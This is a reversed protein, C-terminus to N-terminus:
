TLLFNDATLPMAGRVLIQMDAMGDGTADVHVTQAGQSGSVWVGFAVPGEASFILGETVENLRIVDEASMDTITDITAALGSDSVEAFRFVDAGSGGTLFDRGGEGALVDAGTGGVLSDKGNGGFLVDGGAGGNLLDDGNEGFASDQGGRGNFADRGAGLSVFDAYKNGDVSDAGRFITSDPEFRGGLQYRFNMGTVSFLLKSGAVGSMSDFEMTNGQVRHSKMVISLEGGTFQLFRALQTEQANLWFSKDETKTLGLFRQSAVVGDLIIIGAGLVDKALVKVM